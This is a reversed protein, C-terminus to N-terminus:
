AATASVSPTRRDTDDHQALWRSMKKIMAWQIFSESSDTRREYDRCLRRCAMIWALTREVVWRKPLVAFGTQGPKKRVVEVTTNLISKAWEVFTGAFGSDAFVHRTRRHSFYMDVLVRKGGHHDHASAATVLVCLVMGLTDVVIFRKRGNIKKGMDYGRSHAGVTSAAKVSQSDIIAASPQPDRGELVRIKRRLVNNIKATTGDDRWVCFHYYVTPWPPFDAPLARWVCGNHTIYLIGNVIDRRPYKEPRGDKSPPPLEPQIEKWQADTM